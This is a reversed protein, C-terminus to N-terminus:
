KPSQSFGALMDHHNSVNLSFPISAPFASVATELQKNMLRKSPWMCLDHSLRISIIDYVPYFRPVQQEAHLQKPTKSASNICPSLHWMTFSLILCQNQLLNKLFATSPFDKSFRKNLNLLDFFLKKLLSLILYFKWIKASCHDETHLHDKM